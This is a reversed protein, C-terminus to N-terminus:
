STQCRDVGPIWNYGTNINTDAVFGENRSSTGDYVVIYDWISSWGYVGSVNEGSVQCVIRVPTGNGGITGRYGCYPQNSVCAHNRLNVGGTATTAAHWSMPTAVPPGSAVPALTAAEASSVPATALVALLTGALMM